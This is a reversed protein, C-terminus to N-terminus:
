VGLHMRLLYGAGFAIISVVGIFPLLFRYFAGPARNTFIIRNIYFFEKFTLKNGCFQIDMHRLRRKKQKKPQTKVKIYM